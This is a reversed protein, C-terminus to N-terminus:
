GNRNFVSKLWTREFGLTRRVLGQSPFYHVFELVSGSIAETLIRYVFIPVGLAAQHAAIATTSWSVGPTAVLVGNILPKHLFFLYQELVCLFQTLTLGVPLTNIIRPTVMFLQVLGQGMMSAIFKATTPYRGSTHDKVRDGMHVSHGIYKNHSDLDGSKVLLYCGPTRKNLDVPHEPGAVASFPKVHSTNPIPMALEIPSDSIKECLDIHEQTITATSPLSLVQTIITLNPAGGDKIYKVAVANRRFYDTRTTCDSTYYRM